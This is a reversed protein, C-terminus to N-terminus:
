NVKRTGVHKLRRFKRKAELQREYNKSLNLNLADKIENVSSNKSKIILCNITEENSKIYLQIMERVKHYTLNQLEDVLSSMAKSYDKLKYGDINLLYRFNAVQKNLSNLSTNGIVCDVLDEESMKLPGISWKAIFYAITLEEKSWIRKKSTEM